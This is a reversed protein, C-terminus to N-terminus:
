VLQLPTGARPPGACRRDVHQGDRAGGDGPAVVKPRGVGEEGLAGGDARRGTTKLKKYHLLVGPHRLDGKPELESWPWLLEQRSMGLGGVSAYRWREREQRRATRHAM